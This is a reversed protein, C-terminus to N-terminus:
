NISLTDFCIEVNRTSITELERKNENWRMELNFVNEIRTYVPEFSTCLMELMESEDELLLDGRM